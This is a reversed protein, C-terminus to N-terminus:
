LLKQLKKLTIGTKDIACTMQWSELGLKTGSTLLGDLDLNDKLKLEESSEVTNEYLFVGLLAVREGAKLSAHLDLIQKPMRAGVSDTSYNTKVPVHEPIPTHLKILPTKVEIWLKDAVAPADVYFDIRSSGLKKEPVVTAESAFPALSPLRSARLFAKVYANAATQNIGIWQFNEHGPEFLSFAELTYDTSRKLYPGSVLGPLGDLTAGGIRGGVPTHARAQTGDPFEVIAVYRNPRSLIKVSTLPESFALKDGAELKFMAGM